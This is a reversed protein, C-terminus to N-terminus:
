PLVSFAKVAGRADMPVFAEAHTVGTQNGRFRSTLTTYEGLGVGIGRKLAEEQSAHKALLSTKRAMVGTIDVYHTPVFDFPGIPEVQFVAPHAGLPKSATPMVPLCSHMACHRVLMHTTTLDLNYDKQYHTFVLDAGCRRIADVLKFRIEATDYLFEDLERLNIFEAGAERALNSMEAHRIGAAEARPLDPQQVFGGSGDTLTIFFLKDGRAQCRLMTGLCMMEDDQHAMISVVNMIFNGEKTGASM